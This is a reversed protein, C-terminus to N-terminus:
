NRSDAQTPVLAVANMLFRGWPARSTLEALRERIAGVLIPFGTTQVLAPQTAEDLAGSVTIVAYGEIVFVYPANKSNENDSRVAVILAYKGPQGEIKAVQQTIQLLTGAREGQQDHEPNAQVNQLPFFLEELQLSSLPEM